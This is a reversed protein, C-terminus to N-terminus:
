FCDKASSPNVDFHFQIDGDQPRFHVEFSFTCATDVLRHEQFFYVGQRTHMDWIVEKNIQVTEKPGTSIAHKPNGDLDWAVWLAIGHCTGSRFNYCSNM